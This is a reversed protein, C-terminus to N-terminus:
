ENSQLLQNATALLNDSIRSINEMAKAIEMISQNQQQSALSIKSVYQQTEAMETMLTALAPVIASVKNQVDGVSQRITETSKRSEEALKRVEQAVVAFGRGHEGVRAAEIAANLALLNTQSSVHKIAEAIGGISNASTALSQSVGSTETIRGMDLSIRSDIEQIAATTTDIARSVQTTIATIEQMQQSLSNSMAAVEGSLQKHEFVSIWQTIACVSEATAVRRAPIIKTGPSIYRNYKTHLISGPGVIKDAGAIYRAQILRQTVDTESIEAYPIYSFTLHSIGQEQCYSAIKGAQATNNNFIAVTEGAGIQAIEVFFRCDPILELAVIKNKPIKKAAEDVRTPLCLFLDAISHDHVQKIDYARGGDSIHLFLRAAELLEDAILQSSGVTALRFTVKM